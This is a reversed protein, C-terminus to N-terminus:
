GSGNDSIDTTRGFGAHVFTLRTGGGDPALQFWIM